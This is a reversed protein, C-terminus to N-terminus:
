EAPVNMNADYIVHSCLEKTPVSMDAKCHRTKIEVTLADKKSQM